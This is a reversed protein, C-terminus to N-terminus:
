ITIRDNRFVLYKDATSGDVSDIIYRDITYDILSFDFGSHKINLVIDAATGVKCYCLPVALQFGLESKSGEQISRMWLPLYNRETAGIEAIREQWNTVSSPFYNNPNPNSVFYGRSDVTIIPEPRESRPADINMTIFSNSWFDTSSDTTITTNETGLHKILNPLRKGNPELPDIMELYVVEYVATRTGPKYATATKVSGVQFRKRKHNLGMAGVYAAAATTEIGAYIVMSLDTQLGFNNDNTRYISTPTFISTNNIFEKFRDRQSMDDTAWADVTNKLFPKVRISSYLVTNPTGVKLTFTRTTASIGFQDRAEVTFTYVRDITTTDGDLTEFEQLGNVIDYFRTLGIDDSSPAPNGDVIVTNVSIATGGDLFLHYNSNSDGGDLFHLFGGVNSTGFQNVKGVIEGDMNLSLGPPLDGSTLNYLVTAGSVSSSANVNLTSVFNADIIGLDASTNWTIVSDIEGIINITFTRSSIATELKESFRTSTITFKYTTTIAPQYPVSGYIESTNIDFQMGPPLTSATNDPNLTELNNIINETDYTKLPITIYNNARYTGLNSATLWIPKRLYTVDATFVGSLYTNDARFYDDGVVFIDFKRKVTADGDSVSVYFEYNRNLKKPPNTPTNYDYFVSEYVYSDYGNSPRYAFDFAVADYTSEDYTGTGDAPKISLAPQVFGVIRGDTTLVLGPPLEGDDRAIFYSLHQNSSILNLDTVEVQFDIYTSDLTFLQESPGVPLYGEPTVFDPGNSSLIEINFTRDAISSNLEARVCFTYSTTRSVEYPTGVIRNGSIRLGAPLAGSIVAYTVGSDNTVPLPEDFIVHEQFSGFSYGSRQTWVNLAM